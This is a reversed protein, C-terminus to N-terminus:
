AASDSGSDGSDSGSDSGSDDPASTSDDPSKSDFVPPPCAGLFVLLLILRM